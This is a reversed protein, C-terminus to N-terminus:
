NWNLFIVQLLFDCSVGTNKGPFDWSSFFSALQLGQLQLFDSVVSGSFLLLMALIYWSYVMLYPFETLHLLDYVCVCM